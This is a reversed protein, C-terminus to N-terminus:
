TRWFTQRTVSVGWIQMICQVYYAMRFYNHMNVSSGRSSGPVGGPTWSGGQKPIVSISLMVLGSMRNKTSNIRIFCNRSIDM